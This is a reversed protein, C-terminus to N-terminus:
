QAPAEEHDSSQKSFSHSQPNQTPNRWERKINALTIVLELGVMDQPEYSKDYLQALTAYDNDRQMAYYEWLTSKRAFNAAFDLALNSAVGFKATAPANAGLDIGAFVPGGAFCGNTDETEGYNPACIAVDFVKGDLEVWSHDFKEAGYHVEGVCLKPDMGLHKLRMFLVASTSHCAGWDPQQPNTVYRLLAVFAALVTEGQAVQSTLAKAREITADVYFQRQAVSLYRLDGLVAQAAKAAALRRNKEGM